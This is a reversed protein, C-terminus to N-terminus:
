PQQTAQLSRALSSYGGWSQAINSVGNTYSTSSGAYGSVPIPPVKAVEGEVDAVGTKEAKAIWDAGKAQLEPLGSKRYMHGIKYQAEIVDNKAAKEFWALAKKRNQPVGEGKFYMEGLWREADAFGQDASRQMFEFALHADKKVGIGDKHMLGVLCQSYPCGGDALKKFEKYGESYKKEQILKAGSQLQLEHLPKQQEAISPFSYASSAAIAILSFAILRAGFHYHFTRNSINRMSFVGM